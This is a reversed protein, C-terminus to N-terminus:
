NLLHNDPFIKTDLFNKGGGWKKPFFISSYPVTTIKSRIYYNIFGSTTIEGSFVQDCQICVPLNIIYCLNDSEMDLKNVALRM